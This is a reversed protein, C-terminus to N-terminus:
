VQNGRHWMYQILLYVYDPISVLHSDWWSIYNCKCMYQLALIYTAQVNEMVILWSSLEPEIFDMGPLQIYIKPFQFRTEVHINWIVARGCAMYSIILSAKKFDVNVAKCSDSTGLVLGILIQKHWRQWMVMMLLAM